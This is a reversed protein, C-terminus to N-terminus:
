QYTIMGFRYDKKRAAYVFMRNEDIQVCAKPRTIADRKDPALLAERHVTGVGEVTALTILAEKGGLKFQEVKDGPLLFLNKGNDNFVFYINDETVHMAFSSYYGGDNTTHQRKPVKVAWDINGEPDVNVVIIDNYVYHYTTTTSTRGNADTFTSTTVYFRYQEGVLVAGGDDTRVIDRLEYNFMELEEGKKDAKKKVKDEEKETMYQTIFDDTFEKYSEHIVAKSKRDLRLFFTGRTTYSGKNGYFGGCLIDGEDGLSLTLDQLFKDQVIIAHDDPVDKDAHYVLLHYVFTPKKDKRLEKAESKEAYKKGVMIVSGEDDLRLDAVAFEDDPYPLEVDRQWLANMENDYVRLAFREMNEKEFPLNLNVLIKSDDPSSHVDFSGTQRRSEVPMEAVRQIRGIPSMNGANFMRLFLENSKAKKDYYTTFVVIRDGILQILELRHDNKDIEMPLLKKYVSHFGLDMKQVHIEKKYNVLMYVEEENYAFVERFDGDKSDNLEPGWTIEARSTKTQATATAASMLAAVILLNTTRTM